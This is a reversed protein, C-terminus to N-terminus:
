QKEKEDTFKVEDFTPPAVFLFLDILFMLVDQLKSPTYNKRTELNGSVALGNVPPKSLTENYSPLPQETIPEVPPASPLDISNLPPLLMMPAMSLLDDAYNELSVTGLKITTINNLNSHWGLTEAKSEIYYEVTIIRCGTFYHLDWSPHFYLDTSFVQNHLTFQGSFEHAWFTRKKQRTRSRSSDAHFIIKEVLRVRARDIAVDSSNDMELSYQVRDGPAFGSRPLVNYIRLPDSEWCCCGFTKYAKARVPERLRPFENLDCHPIINFSIREKEDFDWPIDMKVECEYRIHGYQNEYNEPLTRPLEFRVHYVHSGAALRITPGLM